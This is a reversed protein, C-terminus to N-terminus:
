KEHKRRGQLWNLDESDAEAGLWKIRCKMCHEDSGTHCELVNDYKPPCLPAILYALEPDTMKRIIDGNKM